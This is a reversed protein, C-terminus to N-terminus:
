YELTGQGIANWRRVESSREVDYPTYPLGSQFRWKAGIEWNNALKKSAVASIIHQSDWSSVICDGALNTFESREFTYALIGYFDKYLRQQYLLEIGWLYARKRSKQCSFQWCSLRKIISGTNFNLSVLLSVPSEETKRFASAKIVAKEIAVAAEELAFDISTPKNNTM